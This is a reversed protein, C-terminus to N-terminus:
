KIYYYLKEYFYMLGSNETSLYHELPYLRVLIKKHVVIKKRNKRGLGCLM